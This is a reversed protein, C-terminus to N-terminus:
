LPRTMTAFARLLMMISPGAMILMVPPVTFFITGLAIKVPMTNAKEEARMIRKNRMESAYVRLADGISVGYQDSQSLITIFASIDHVNIREAFDRMVQTRDKGARLEDSIITLEQSLVPTKSRMEKAVRTLSQDLGHGAEVCVLLMDLTDPFGLEAEQRRMQIRRQVWYPPLMYGIGIALALLGFIEPLRLKAGAIPLLLAAIAIAGLTCLMRALNYTRVASPTRYGARALWFRRASVDNSEALWPLGGLLKLLGMEFTKGTPQDASAPGPGGIQLRRFLLQRHTILGYGTGLIMITAVFVVVGVLVLLGVLPLSGGM